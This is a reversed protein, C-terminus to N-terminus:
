LFCWPTGRGALSMTKSQEGATMERLVVVVMSRWDANRWEGRGLRRLGRRWVRMAIKMVIKKRRRARMLLDSGEWEM